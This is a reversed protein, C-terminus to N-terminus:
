PRNLTRGVIAFSGMSNLMAKGYLVLLTRIPM